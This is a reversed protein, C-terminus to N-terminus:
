REQDRILIIGILTVAPVTILLALLDNSLDEFGLGKSFTGRSISMFYSAPYIRGILAGVGKLSSVPDTLGSYQTAPILTLLATAFIAAIQSSMLSSIVIGISTAIMVYLLAAASYALFSGTFNVRFILTAFAFLLLFNAIGLVVYPVQKGFFFELRTVPTVYLNTISGLEKERVVSLAALMAPILLLLLPIVAPVMAVLSRIDPNYRFRTEISFANQAAAPGYIERAKRGLWDAQLGQVYARVTEARQPMAGDIWAGISVKDGRELDRGFGPPIEIALSLEGSRMRSDLDAYSQIPPKEIFYRSGAIDSAYDQSLVTDDLDLVAFSLDEVDMNIGYGIVFMLIVSGLVALTARVPDRKLELAERKTYSLMRRVDFVRNRAQTFPHQFRKDVVQTKSQVQEVSKSPTPAGQADQLYRIFAEELTTCNVSKKIAGPTDSVLVRGAHMLSIRDCREAENMFHTSIFITVDDNRSLEVLIKWFGDRAIPDVGSTPEDLILIDPAHIMAVALSLRQRLGLPLASPLADFEETLDFRRAMEAIRFPIDEAPVSFLRAHLTLNQRVTLENYLSFSQSMYGIRRRVSMDSANVSQGFLEAEGETAPLLGTLMKMTTSKGCGNSGLFGFIEGRSIDLSVDNVAVFDGFRKCLHKAVIAPEDNLNGSRKPIVLEQYQEGAHGPLMRIFATDLNAAKTAALMESPTGQFMVKGANM